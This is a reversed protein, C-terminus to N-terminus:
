ETTTHQERVKAMTVEIQARIQAVAERLGRVKANDTGGRSAVLNLHALQDSLVGFQPKLLTVMPSVARHIQQRHMGTNEQARAAVAMREVITNVRQLQNLADDLTHLKAQGAGDLHPPM